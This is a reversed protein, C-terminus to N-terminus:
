YHTTVLETPVQSTVSLLDLLLWVNGQRLTWHCFHYIYIQSLSRTLLTICSNVRYSTINIIQLSSMSGTTNACRAYLEMPHHHTQCLQNNKKILLDPETSSRTLINYNTVDELTYVLVLLNSHRNIPICIGYVGMGGGHSKFATGGVRSWM